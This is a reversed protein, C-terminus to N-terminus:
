SGTHIEVGGDPLPVFQEIFIHNVNGNKKILSNAVKWADLWTSVERASEKLGQYTFYKAQYPIKENMMSAQVESMSWVTSFGNKEAINRLEDENLEWKIDEARNYDNLTSNVKSQMSKLRDIIDSAVVGELRQIISHFDPQLSNLSKMQESSFTYEM